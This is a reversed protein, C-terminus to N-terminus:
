WHAALDSGHDTSPSLAPSLEAGSGDVSSRGLVAGALAQCGPGQRCPYHRSTTLVVEVGRVRGQVEGDLQAGVPPALDRGDFRRSVAEAFRGLHLRWFGTAGRVHASPVWLANDSASRGNPERCPLRHARPM